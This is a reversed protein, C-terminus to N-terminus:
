GTNAQRAIAQRRRDWAEIYEALRQEARKEFRDRTEKELKQSLARFERAAEHDRLYRGIAFHEFAEYVPQDTEAMGFVAAYGLYRFAEPEPKERARRFHPLARKRNQEVGIGDWLAKGLYFDSREDGEAAAENLFRWALRPQKIIGYGGEYYRVGVFRKSATRGQDAAKRHWEVSLKRDRKTGDGHWYIEGLRAMAEVNGNAAEIEYLGIAQEIDRPIFKGEDLLKALRLRAGAHGAVTAKRYWEVAASRNMRTGEGRELMGAIKWQAEPDGAEAALEYLRAARELDVAVGDGTAFLEAGRRQAELDGQEGAALYWRAAEARDRELRAGKDYAKAVIAQAARIGGEAARLYWVMAEEPNKPVIEGADYRQALAFQAQPDEAAALRFWREAEADDVEVGLGKSYMLALNAQALPHAQEAAMRFWKLSAEYDVDVGVGNAYLAGLYNQAEVEGAEAAIEFWHIAKDLSMLVGNGNTTYLRALHLQATSYGAEAAKQLLKAGRGPNRPVGNGAFYRFALDVEDQPNEAEVLRLLWSGAAQENAIIGEGESYIRVLERMAEHDGREAIAELWRVRGRPDPEIGPTGGIYLSALERQAQELGQEAAKEYWALGAEIDQEPGPALRRTGMEFQAEAEGREARAPVEDAPSCAAIALLVAAALGALWPTPRPSRRALPSPTSKMHSPDAKDLATRFASIRWSEARGSSARALM